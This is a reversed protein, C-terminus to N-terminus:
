GSCCHEHALEHTCGLKCHDNDLYVIRSEPAAQQAVEHTNGASPLGTGIDLFQGIGAEGALYRVVRALMLRSQRAMGAVGPFIEGIRDGAQRDALYNDKGGLLYNWVRASHPVTTDTVTGRDCGAGQGALAPDPRSPRIAPHRPDNTV